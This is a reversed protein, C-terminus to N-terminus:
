CCRRGFTLRPPQTTPATRDVGPIAPRKTRRPGVRLCGLPLSGGTHSVDSCTAAKEPRCAHLLPRVPVAPDRLRPVVGMLWDRVMRQGCGTFLSPSLLRQLRARLSISMRVRATGLPIWWLVSLPHNWSPPGPSASGQRPSVRAGRSERAFWSPWANSRRRGVLTSYGVSLTSSGRM